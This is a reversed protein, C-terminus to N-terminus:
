YGIATKAVHQNSIQSPNSSVYGWPNLPSNEFWMLGRYSHVWRHGASQLTAPREPRKLTKGGIGSETKREPNDAFFIRCDIPNEALTASRFPGDQCVAVWFGNVKRAALRATGAINSLHGSRCTREKDGHHLQQYEWQQLIWWLVWM